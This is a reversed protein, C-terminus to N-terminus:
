QYKLIRYFMRVTDNFTRFVDGRKDHGQPFFISFDSDIRLASLNPGYFHFDIM